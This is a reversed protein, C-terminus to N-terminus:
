LSRKVPFILSCYRGQLATIDPKHGLPKERHRVTFTPWRVPVFIGEVLMMFIIYKQLIFLKPSFPPAWFLKPAKFGNQMEVSDNYFTSICYLFSSLLDETPTDSPHCSFLHLQNDDPTFKFLSTLRQLFLHFNKVIGGGRELCNNRVLKREGGWRGERPGEGLM